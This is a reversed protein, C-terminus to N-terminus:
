PLVGAVDVRIGEPVVVPFSAGSRLDLLFPQPFASPTEHLGGAWNGDRSLALLDDAGAGWPCPLEKNGRATVLTLGSADPPNFALGTPLPYSLLALNPQTTVIERAGTAVDVKVVRWDDVGSPSHETYTLLKGDLSVRFDRALSAQPVLTRAAGSKVDIAMIPTAGPGIDYTLVEDGAVGAMFSLYGTLRWVTRAAGTEPNVADITIADMRLQQFAGRVPEVEAGAVGRTVLIEGTGAIFPRTSAYVRDVLSRTEGQATVLFLSSNWSRDRTETTEAIVAASQGDPMAAAKVTAGPLHPADAWRRSGLMVSSSEGDARSFVMLLEPSGKPPPVVRSQARTYSVALAGIALVVFVAQGRGLRM